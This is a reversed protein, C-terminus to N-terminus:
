ALPRSMLYLYIGWSYRLGIMTHCTVFVHYDSCTTEGFLWLHFQFHIRLFLVFMQLSSSLPLQKHNSTLFQSCGGSIYVTVSWPHVYINPFNSVLLLLLLCVFLVSLYVFLSIVSVSLSRLDFLVMSCIVFSPMCKSLKFSSFIFCIYICKSWAAQHYQM